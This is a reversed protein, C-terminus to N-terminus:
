EAAAARTSPARNACAHSNPNAYAYSPYRAALNRDPRPYYANGYARPHAYARRRRLM